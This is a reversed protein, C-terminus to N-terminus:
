NINEQCPSFSLRHLPTLGYKKIALLHKKTGYGKNNKWDYEPYQDHYAIMKNDRDVKALISASAIISSRADGKILSVQPYSLNPLSFKGDVLCLSPSVSLGKIANSMALLSAHHINISDITKHDVEAICWDMVIAKIASVKEERQKATLKKSDKVGINELLYSKNYPLVVACAVVSGCLCGRGVEDVGAVLGEGDSIYDSISFDLITTM